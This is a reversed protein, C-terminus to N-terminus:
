ASGILLNDFNGFDFVRELHASTATQVLANSDPDVASSYRVWILDWGLKEPITIEGITFNIRNPSAIFKYNIEWDGSGHQAGVAGLFVCEGRNFGKFFSANMNAKLHFLIGKYENTILDNPLVHHENFSYARSFVEAGEIRDKTANIAGKHDPAKKGPPAFNGLNSISQTIRDTGGTTDFAFGSVDADNTINELTKYRITCDWTGTQTIEDVVIAQIDIGDRVLGSYLVPTDLEIKSRVFREQSTGTCTYKRVISVRGGSEIWERSDVKETLKM